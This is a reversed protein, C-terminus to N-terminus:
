FTNCSKAVYTIQNYKLALTLKCSVFPPLDGLNTKEGVKMNKAWYIRIITIYIKTFIFNLKQYILKKSRGSLYAFKKPPNNGLM